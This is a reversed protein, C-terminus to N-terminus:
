FDNVMLIKLTQHNVVGHADVNETCTLLLGQTNIIMLVKLTQHNAWMMLMVNETCTFLLEQVKMLWSIDVNYTCTFQVTDSNEDTKFFYKWHM